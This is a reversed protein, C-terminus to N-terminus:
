AHIAALPQDLKESGLGLNRTGELQIARDHV